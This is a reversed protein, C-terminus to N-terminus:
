RETRHRRQMWVFAVVFILLALGIAPVLNVEVFSAQFSLGEGPAQLRNVPTSLRKAVIVGAPVSVFLSAGAAAAGAFFAKV